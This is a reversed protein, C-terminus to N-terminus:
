ISNFSSKKIGRIFERVKTSKDMQIDFRKLINHARIHKLCYQDFLWNKTNREWTSTHIDNRASTIAANKANDGEYATLLATWAERGDGSKEFDTLYTEALGGTLLARLKQFVQFNDREYYDGQLPADYIRKMQGELLEYEDQTIDDDDRIIYSLPCGDAGALQALFSEFEARWAKWSKSRGSFKEPPKVDKQSSRKSESRLSSRKAMEDMTADCTANDFAALDIDERTM